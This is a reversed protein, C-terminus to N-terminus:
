VLMDEVVEPVKELVHIKNKHIEQSNYLLIRWLLM